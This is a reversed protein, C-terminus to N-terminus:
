ATEVSTAKGHSTTLALEPLPTVSSLLSTQCQCPMIFQLDECSKDKVEELNSMTPAFSSVLTTQKKGTLTLKLIMLRDNLGKPLNSLKNIICSKNAFGVGAELRENAGRTQIQYCSHEKAVLSTRESINSEIHDM